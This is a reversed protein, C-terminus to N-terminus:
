YRQKSFFSHPRAQQNPNLLLKPAPRPLPLPLSLRPSRSAKHERSSCPLAKGGVKPSHLWTRSARVARFGMPLGLSAVKSRGRQRSNLPRETEESIPQGQRGRQFVRQRSAEWMTLHWPLFMRRVCAPM